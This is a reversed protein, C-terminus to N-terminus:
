YHTGIIGLHRKAVGSYKQKNNRTALEIADANIMLESNSLHRCNATNSSAKKKSTLRIPVSSISLGFLEATFDLSPPQRQARQLHGRYPPVPGQISPHHSYVLPARHLLFSRVM